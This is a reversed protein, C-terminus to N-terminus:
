KVGLLSDALGRMQMPQLFIWIGSAYLAIAACAWPLLLGLAAKVRPTCDRAIRWGIYLTLLLGADLLLTQLVLLADASVRLSSMSWDPQGLYHFGVDGAAQQVIPWAVGYGSLLHFLFHAAWMAAGLPVLALSFRSFLERASIAVKGVTRGLLVLPAIVIVPALLLAAAFIVTIVPLPSVLGLQSALRDRWAVLPGTMAAASILAAFVLVLALAAVDTRRSLRGLSSRVPDRVLEAGPAVAVLGINDHPCARVCDLCFTCDLNGAKRPLYLDMECGRQHENGRLCDHTRCSACIDPARVKVELPSVLSNIFQFQGIPCVYKCFSAGRFFADLVFAALFYNLILWATWIPKDWLDFAEYGWFFLVLLAVALWKSRLARPWPRPKLGLRRGLERPLTFPCAMCFLNGAALLAVVTLARWYNWPLVGALNSSSIKPGFFGDAMVGIAIVLLVAQMFRRSSRARLFRGIGPLALLDFSAHTNAVTTEPQGRRPLLPMPGAGPRAPRVLSHRPSLYQISLVTAPILFVLSGPVWMIVGAAAQDGLASIGFLRPVNAYAPYLVHESFSLIGCLGTNVLDAALLYIPIAWLPWHPHSPFPRVVPWWFLLAAGFFCAHEVKHWGPSRLALEFAAPVHWLCLSMTMALWGVVPHTLSHGFRRLAPWTLFPGFGEHAVARPLGRLLPLLPAGLLILPPAMSLLLLHQVMHASLLLGSFADLPSAIALWLTILGGLFACLRWALFRNPTVHHLVLWGRLYLLATVILGLAFKPDILWSSLAAQASASM